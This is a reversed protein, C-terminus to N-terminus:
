GASRAAALESVVRDVAREVDPSLGAGLEFSGAEIGIVELSRPLRGTTRALSIADALGLLHTSSSLTPPLADRLADIRHLTGPAAGSRVADIVVVDDTSHWDSVLDDPRRAAAPLGLEQLRRAAVLGAADDGRMEAGVGFITRM